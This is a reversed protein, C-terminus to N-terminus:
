SPAFPDGVRRQWEALRQALQNQAERVSEEGYLNQLEGPDNKLDYLENEGGEEYHLVLKWQATRIMRMHAQAGHHMDYLGFLADRWEVREGRLLPLMSRGELELGPPVEQGLIELFTPFFDISSVMAECKTGPQVVGPWRIILPVLISYDFMNPRRMRTGIVWANGKTELGHQGIMYGNDGMLLVMTNDAIGLEELEALLRGLNRDIGTISAYYGRYEKQLREEPFNEVTPVQLKRGRYPVMDEEPVPLYPKHPARTHLFLAFPRDRNERLFKLADDTLVDTLFGRVQKAEGNIILTPDKPRNGGGLFGMFYDFGRRLPHYEEEKGLHWKGILGTTYGAQKLVEALTTRAPDLGEREQPAIWDDIGVQHSHCGAMIMARSPSCVPATFAYTFLVGERALRDMNPTYVDENGYAGVAWQAQDDTLLFLINPRKMTRRARGEKGAFVEAAAVGVLFGAAAAM